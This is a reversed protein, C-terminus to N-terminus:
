KKNQVVFWVIIAIVIIGLVWWLWTLSTTEEGTTVGPEETTVPTVDEGSTSVPGAGEPIAESLYEITVDAKGDVIANLKVYVDYTGDM